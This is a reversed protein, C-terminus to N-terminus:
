WRGSAGGGGFGGGGGGFGGFGGGGRGGFGGGGGWPGGWHSGRYRGRPGYGAARAMAGFGFLGWMGFFLVILFVILWLPLGGRRPGGSPIRYEGTAAAALSRVGAAIGTSWAGTRFSPIMDNRMISSAVADPIAGELGYGVEIRAERDNPYVGVVVGNDKDARGPKWAEAFKLTVEEATLGELSGLTVVVIQNSTDRDLTALFAELQQEDGAPIVDAYDNVYRDTRPPVSLASAPGAALAVLALAAAARRM